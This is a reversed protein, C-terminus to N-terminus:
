EALTCTTNAYLTVESYVRVNNSGVEDILKAVDRELDGRHYYRRPANGDETLVMEWNDGVKYAVSMDFPM